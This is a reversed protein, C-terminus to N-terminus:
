AAKRRRLPELENIAMMIAARRKGFWTMGKATVYVQRRMTGKVDHSRVIFHEADMHNQKPLGSLCFHGTHKLAQNLKQVGTGLNKAAESMTYTGEANCLADFVMAKPALAVNEALLKQSHEEALLAREFQDAWARAATAPNRFDPLQIATEAVQAELEQWRDVIRARLEISYGSILILCERKPLLILNVFKRYDRYIIVGKSDDNSPVSGEKQLAKLMAQIDRIVNKHQKGTLEAIEQSSMTLPPHADGEQPANFVLLNTM